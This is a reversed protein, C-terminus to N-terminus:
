QQLWGSQKLDSRGRATDTLSRGAQDKSAPQQSFHMDVSNTPQM